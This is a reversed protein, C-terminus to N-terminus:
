SRGTKQAKKQSLSSIVPSTRAISSPQHELTQFGCGPPDGNEYKM